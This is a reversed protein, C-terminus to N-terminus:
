IEGTGRKLLLKNGALHNTLASWPTTTHPQTHATAGDRSETIFM